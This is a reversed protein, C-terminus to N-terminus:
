PDAGGAAVAPMVAEVGEPRTGIFRRYVDEPTLRLITLGERAEVREDLGGFASGASIV